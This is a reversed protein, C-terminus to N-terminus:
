LIGKTSPVGEIRDSRSVAQALARGFAKFAAEVIHHGNAGAFRHLHLTIGANHAVARFFEPVMETAFEGIREVPISLSCVSLGRGSIDLACLVLAEDMPVYAQGYRTIGSRDGLAENLAQGLVIGIDEVTHHCDVQLDGKAKVILDILGHKAVHTLMHNLFGVGTDIDSTGKGDLNIGLRIETEKTKREVIAERPDPM